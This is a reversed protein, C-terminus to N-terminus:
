IDIMSIHKFIALKLNCGRGGPALSNIEYSPFESSSQTGTSKMNQYRIGLDAATTQGFHNPVLADTMMCFAGNCISPESSSQLLELANAISNSCDQVLGDIYVKMM